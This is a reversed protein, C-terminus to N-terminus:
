RFLRRPFLSHEAPLPTKVRMFRAAATFAYLQPLEADRVGYLFGDEVVFSCPLSSPTGAPAARAATTYLGAGPLVGLCFRANHIFSGVGGGAERFPSNVRWLAYIACRPEKARRGARSAPSLPASLPDTLRLYFNARFPSSAFFRQMAGRVRWAARRV